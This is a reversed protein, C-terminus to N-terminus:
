PYFALVRYGSFRDAGAATRVAVTLNGTWEGGARLVASGAGLENPLFVRRMVAQDQSDTLTLELAPLAIELTSTNRVVLSLRYSEGRTKNFSSGEIVVSEIRRLAGVTCGAQSCLAELATRAQPFMAVIRDREQLAVQVALAALLALAVVSLVARVWARHWPSRRPMDRLFSPRESSTADQMGDAAAAVPAAPLDKAPAPETPLAEAVHQEPAAQSGEGPTQASPVEDIAGFDLSVPENQVPTELLGGLPIDVSGEALPDVPVQEAPM